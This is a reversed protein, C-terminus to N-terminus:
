MSGSSRPDVDAPTSEAETQGGFVAGACWILASAYASSRLQKVVTESRRTPVFGVGQLRIWDAWLHPLVTAVAASWPVDVGFQARHGFHGSPRGAALPDAASGPSCAWGM